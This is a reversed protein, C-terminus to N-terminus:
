YKGTRKTRLNGYFGRMTNYMYRAPYRKLVLATTVGCAVVAVPHNVLLNRVESPKKILDPHKVTVRAHNDPYTVDVTARAYADLNWYLLNRMTQLPSVLEIPNKGDTGYDKKVHEIQKYSVINVNDYSKAATKKTNELMDIFISKPWLSRRTVLGAEQLGLSTWRACNGREAMTPFFSRMFNFVPGLVIDFKANGQVAMDKVEQFKKDMKLINEPPVDEVRISIFNRNFVGGQDSNRSFMYEEPTHFNVLEDHGKGGVINFAKRTGDPMTYIVASHGYWNFNFGYGFVTFGSHPRAILYEVAPPKSKELSKDIEQFITDRNAIKEFRTDRSQSGKGETSASFNSSM